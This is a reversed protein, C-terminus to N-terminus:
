DRAEEGSGSLLALAAATVRPAEAESEPALTPWLVGDALAKGAVELGCVHAVLRKEVLRQLLGLHWRPSRSSHLWDSVLSAAEELHEEIVDELYGLAESM